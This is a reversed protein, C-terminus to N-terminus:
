ETMTTEKLHRKHKARISFRSSHEGAQINYVSTCTHAGTNPLKTFASEFPSYNTKEHGFHPLLLLKLEGFKLSDFSKDFHLVASYKKGQRKVDLM